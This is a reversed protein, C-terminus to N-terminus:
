MGQSQCQKDVLSGYTDGLVLVCSVGLCLVALEWPLRGSGFVPMEAHQPVTRDAFSSSSSRRLNQAPESYKGM